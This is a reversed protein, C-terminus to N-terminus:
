PLIKVNLITWGVTNVNSDSEFVFQVCVNSHYRAESLDFQTNVLGGSDGTFGWRGALLTDALISGGLRADYARGSFVPIAASYDFSVGGDLSLFVSCGDWMYQTEYSHTIELVPMTSSYTLDFVPSTLRTSDQDGYSGGNSEDWVNDSPAGEDVIAWGEGRYTTVTWGLSETLDPDFNDDYDITLYGIQYAHVPEFIRSDEVIAFYPYTGFTAGLYNQITLAYEYPDGPVGTGSIRTTTEFPTDSIAPIDIVVKSVDSTYSIVNQDDIEMLPRGIGTMGAQFDCCKVSIEATSTTDGWAIEGTQDLEVDYAETQCFEPLYYKPNARSGLQWPDEVSRAWTASQGYSARFATYFRLEGMSKRTDFTFDHMEFPDGQIFRRYDLSTFYYKFPNLTSIPEAYNPNLFEPDTVVDYLSHTFGDPNTCKFPDTEIETTGDILYNFDVDDSKPLIIIGMVNFVDLDARNAATIPLGPNFAALPHRVGISLTLRQTAYNFGIVDMRMCTSCPTATLYTNLLCEPLAQGIASASRVMNYNAKLTELDVEVEWVGLSMDGRFYDGDAIPTNLDASQSNDPLTPISSSSCGTFILTLFLAIFLRNMDFRWFLM